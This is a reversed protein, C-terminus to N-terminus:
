PIRLTRDPEGSPEQPCAGRELEGLRGCLVDPRQHGGVQLNLLLCLLLLGSEVTVPRRAEGDGAVPGHLFPRTKELVGYQFVIGQVPQGVGAVLDDDLAAAVTFTLRGMARQQACAPFSTISRFM